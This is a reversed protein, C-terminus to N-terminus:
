KKQKNQQKSTGNAGQKPSNPKAKAKAKAQTTNEKQKKDNKIIDDLGMSLRDGLSSAKAMKDAGM